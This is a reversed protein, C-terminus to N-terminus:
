EPRSHHALNTAKEIFATIGEVDDLAFVPVNCDRLAHDSAIAIVNADNGALPGDPPSATRRVEIKPIQASKYGEVLVLDAPTLRDTIAYLNPVPMEQRQGSIEWGTASVLAVACAGAQAHRESDTTADSSRLGHHAHKITAIKYGRKTFAEILRTVLTTKGSNKWGAVGIMAIRPSAM